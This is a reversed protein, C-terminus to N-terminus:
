IYGNAKILKRAEAHDFRGRARNEPSKVDRGCNVCVKIPPLFKITFECYLLTGCHACFDLLWGIEKVIVTNNM